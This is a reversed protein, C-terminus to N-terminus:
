KQKRRRRKARKSLMLAIDPRLEVLRMVKYLRTDEINADAADNELRELERTGLHKLLDAQLEERPLLQIDDKLKDQLIAKLIAHKNTASVVAPDRLLTIWDQFAFAGKNFVTINTNALVVGLFFVGAFAALFYDLTGLRDAFSPHQRQLWLFVISTGMLNVGLMVTFYIGVAQTFCCRIDWGTELGIRGFSRILIEGGVLLM